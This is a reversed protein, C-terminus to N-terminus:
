AGRSANPAIGAFLTCEARGSYRVSGDNTLVHQTVGPAM